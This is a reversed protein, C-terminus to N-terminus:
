NIPARSMLETKNMMLIVNKLTEDGTENNFRNIEKELKQESEDLIIQKSKELIRLRDSKEFKELTNQDFGM